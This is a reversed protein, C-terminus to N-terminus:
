QEIYSEEYVPLKGYRQELVGYLRKVEAEAQASVEAVAWATMGAVAEEPVEEIETEEAPAPVAAEVLRGIREVIDREVAEHLCHDVHVAGEADLWVKVGNFECKCYKGVKERVGDVYWRTEGEKKTWRSGLQDLIEETIGIHKSGIMDKVDEPDRM